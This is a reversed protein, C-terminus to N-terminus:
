LGKIEGAKKIARSHSIYHCGVHGLEGAREKIIQRKKQKMKTRLQNCGNRKLIHYITSPAPTYSKFIPKLIAYIEYRNM